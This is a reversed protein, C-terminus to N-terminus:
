SATGEPTQMPPLDIPTRSMAALREADGFRDRAVILADLWPVHRPDAHRRLLELDVEGLVQRTYTMVVPLVTRAYETQAAQVEAPPDTPTTPDSM